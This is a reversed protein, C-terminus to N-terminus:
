IARRRQRRPHRRRQLPLYDRIPGRKAREPDYHLYELWDSATRRPDRLAGQIFRTGEARWGSPASGARSTSGSVALAPLSESDDPVFDNDYVLIRMARQEKPSKRAIRGDIYLDGDVIQIAEGPLGVVRKVYAQDPEAPSQFVAM